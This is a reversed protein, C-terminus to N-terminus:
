NFTQAILCHNFLLREINCSSKTTTSTMPRAVIKEAPTCKEQGFLQHRKKIMVKKKMSIHMMYQWWRSKIENAPTCSVLNLGM